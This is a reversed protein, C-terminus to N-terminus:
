SLPSRRSKKAEAEREAAERAIQRIGGIISMIKELQDSILRVEQFLKDQENMELLLLDVLGTVTALPQALDHLFHRLNDYNPCPGSDKKSM